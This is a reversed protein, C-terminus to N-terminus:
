PELNGNASGLDLSHKPIDKAARLAAVSDCGSCAAALKGSKVPTLALETCPDIRLWRIKTRWASSCARM